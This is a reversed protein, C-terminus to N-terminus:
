ISRKGAIKRLEAPQSSWINAGKVSIACNGFCDRTKPIEFLDENRTRYSPLSSRVQLLNQFVHLLNKRNNVYSHM